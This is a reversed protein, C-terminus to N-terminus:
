RWAKDAPHDSRRPAPRSRDSSFPRVRDGRPRIVIPPRAGCDDRDAGVSRLAEAPARRIRGRPRASLTHACRLGRALRRRTRRPRSRRKGGGRHRRAPDGEDGLLNASPIRADTLTLSRSHNGRMGVGHWAEQWHLGAIDHDDVVCSFDGADANAVSAKTSVVYSQAYGGNTIFHKRGTVVLAAGERRLETRPLYFHAGTGAESLALTTVHRGAAIEALYRQRHHSGAKAAIVATGVCHMGFCLASASCHRGLVETTATLATLGEGTGGPDAPANLGLLGADRLAEFAHAPWTADRDTAEAHPAITAAALLELRNRSSSLIGPSCITWERTRGCVTGPAGTCRRIRRTAASRGPRLV